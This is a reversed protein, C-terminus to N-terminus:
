EHRSRSSPMAIDLPIDFKLFADVADPAPAPRFDFGLFADLDPYSPGISSAIAGTQKDITFNRIPTGEYGHKGQVHWHTGGNSIGEFAGCSVFRDFYSRGIREAEEQDIGDAVSVLYRLNVNFRAASHSAPGAMAIAPLALLLPLSMCLLAIPRTM